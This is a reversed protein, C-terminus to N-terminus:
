SIQQCRQLNLQPCIMENILCSVAHARCAPTGAGPEILVALGSPCVGPKAARMFIDRLAQCHSPEQAWARWHVMERKMIESFVCEIAPEQTKAGTQHAPSSSPRALVPPPLGESLVSNWASLDIGADTRTGWTVFRGKLNSKLTQCFMQPLWLNMQPTAHPSREYRNKLLYDEILRSRAQECEDGKMPTQVLVAAMDSTVTGLLQLWEQVNVLGVPKDPRPDVLPANAYVPAFVVDACSFHSRMGYVSQQIPSWDLLSSEMYADVDDPVQPMWALYGTFPPPNELDNIWSRRSAPDVHRVPRAAPAQQAPKYEARNGRGAYGAGSALFPMQAADASEAQNAKM